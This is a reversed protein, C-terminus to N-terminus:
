EYVLVYETIYSEPYTDRACRRGKHFWKWAGTSTIFFFGNLRGVRLGDRVTSDSPKTAESTRPNHSWIQVVYPGLMQLVHPGEM